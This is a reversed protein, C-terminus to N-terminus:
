LRRRLFPTEISEEVSSAVLTSLAAQDLVSFAPRHVGGAELNALGAKM